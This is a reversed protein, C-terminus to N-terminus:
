LEGDYMDHYDDDNAVTIIVNNWNSAAIISQTAFAIEESKPPLYNKANSPPAIKNM